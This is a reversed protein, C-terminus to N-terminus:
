VLDQMNITSSAEAAAIVQLEIRNCIKKRKLISAKPMPRNRKRRNISNEESTNQNKVPTIASADVTILETNLEQDSDCNNEPAIIRHEKGILKLDEEAVCSLLAILDLESQDQGTGTYFVFFVSHNRFRFFNTFIKKNLLFQRFLAASDTEFALIM